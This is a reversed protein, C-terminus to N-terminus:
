VQARALMKPIVNMYRIDNFADPSNAADILRSDYIKTTAPCNHQSIEYFQKPIAQTAIWIEQM